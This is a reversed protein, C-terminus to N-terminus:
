QISLRKWNKPFDQIAEIGVREIRSVYRSMWKQYDGVFAFSLVKSIYMAKRGTGGDKTYRQTFVLTPLYGSEPGHRDDSVYTPSLIIGLSSIDREYPEIELESVLKADFYQLWRITEKQNDQKVDWIKLRFEQEQPERLATPKRGVGLSGLKFGELFQNARTM